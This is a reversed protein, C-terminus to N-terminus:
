REGVHMQYFPGAGDGHLPFPNVSWRRDPLRKPYDWSYLFPNAKAAGVRAVRGEYGLWPEVLILVRAIRDLQVLADQPDPIHDLVSVTYAVDYDAPLIALTIADGLLVTRGRRRAEEVAPLSIDIGLVSVDRASRQIAEMHRGVNCGFELVNQPEYSLVARAIKESWEREHTFAGLKRGAWYRAAEEAENM